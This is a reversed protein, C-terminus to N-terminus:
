LDVLPSLLRGTEALSNIAFTKSEQCCMEPTLHILTTCGPHHVLLM